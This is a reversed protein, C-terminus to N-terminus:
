AILGNHDTPEPSKPIRIVYEIFNDNETQIEVASIGSERMTKVANEITNEFIRIDKIIAKQYQSHRRNSKPTHLLHEIYEESQTVNMNNEVIESLVIRRETKDSIKLIAKAHYETLNAKLIIDREDHGLDLVSLKNAVASAKKGINGALEQRTIHCHSIINNIIEAEEFFNLESRQLNENLSFLGAEADSCSIIMCPVTALGCIAAARLRREGAILEYESDKLKRIILPQVIGNKEISAALEDLKDRSYNKRATNKFPRIQVLPIESIRKAPNKFSTNVLEKRVDLIDYRFHNIQRFM